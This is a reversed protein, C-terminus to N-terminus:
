VDEKERLVRWALSMGWNPTWEAAQTANGGFTYTRIMDRIDSAIIIATHGHQTYIAICFDVAYQHRLTDAMKLVSNTVTDIDDVTSQDDLRELVTPHKLVSEHGEVAKLKEKLSGETGIELTTFNVGKEQLMAVFANALPYDGEGYIYTGVRTRIKAEMDAILKDAEPESDALATIRIDTQGIHAALGVTPNTHTMLDGIKEDLHSEGIGATKLVLAKIVRGVGEKEQLYPIVKNVMLYKMERPVGPLSIVIGRESEVIYCPATGVENELIISGKPVFAQQRNNKSMRVGFKEFRDAIQDLLSQHFELERNTATAVGNRTVDDVTPGLGGTTIILDSRNLGDSIATTIRELNDGVTTMYFLSVGINRLAKAIYTSNTDVIEGLLIETGISIIEAKM